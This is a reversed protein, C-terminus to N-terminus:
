YSLIFKINRDVNSSIVCANVHELFKNIGAIRPIIELSLDVKKWDSWATVMPYFVDDSTITEIYGKENYVVMTCDVLFYSCNAPVTINRVQSIPISLLSFKGSLSKRNILLQDKDDLVIKGTYGNSSTKFRFDSYIEACGWFYTDLFSACSNFDVPCEFCGGASHIAFNTTDITFSGNTLGFDGRINLDGLINVDSLIDM